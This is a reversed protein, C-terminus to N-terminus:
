SDPKIQRPKKKLLSKKGPLEDGFLIGWQKFQETRDFIVKAVAIMPLLAGIYPILNLIAFIIGILLAYPIGLLFLSGGPLITIYTIQILLGVIYSKIISESEHMVENVKSHQPRIPLPM